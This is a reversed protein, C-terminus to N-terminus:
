IKQLPQAIGFDHKHFLGAVVGPPAQESDVKSLTDAPQSRRLQAPWSPRRVHRGIGSAHLPIVRVSGPAASTGEFM